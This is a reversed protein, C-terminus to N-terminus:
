LPVPLTGLNAYTNYSAYDGTVTHALDGFHPNPSQLPPRVNPDLLKDERTVTELPNFGPPKGSYAGLSQFPVRQRLSTRPSSRRADALEKRLYANEAEDREYRLKYLQEKLASNKEELAPMGSQSDDSESPHGLHNLFASAQAVERRLEQNRAKLSALDVRQLLADSSSKTTNLYGYHTILAVVSAVGVLAVVLTLPGLNKSM